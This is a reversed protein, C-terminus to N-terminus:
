DTLSCASLKSCIYTTSCQSFYSSLLSFFPLFGCVGETDVVVHGAYVVHTAVGYFSMRDYINVDARTCQSKVSISRQRSADWIVLDADSGV